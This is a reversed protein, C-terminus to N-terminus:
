GRNTSGRRHLMGEVIVEESLPRSEVDLVLEMVKDIM